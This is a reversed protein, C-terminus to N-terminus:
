TDDTVLTCPASHHYNNRLSILAFRRITALGGTNLPAKPTYNEFFEISIIRFTHM